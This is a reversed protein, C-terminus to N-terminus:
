YLEMRMKEAGLSVLLDKVGKAEEGGKEAHHLLTFGHPGKANITEPFAKLFPEIIEMKGFLAATFINAQAGREILYKAIEKQGVHSAAGLCTEYDGKGWDYAVNLLIPNEDLMKEVQELSSHGVRVFENVLDISLKEPDQNATYNFGFVFPLGGAIATQIFSKRKM